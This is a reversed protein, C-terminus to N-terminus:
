YNYVAVSKHPASEYFKFSPSTVRCSNVSQIPFHELIKILCWGKVGKNHTNIKVFRRPSTSCMALECLSCIHIATKHFSFFCCHIFLFSPEELVLCSHYFATTFTLCTFYPLCKMLHRHLSSLCVTGSQWMRDLTVGAAVKVLM